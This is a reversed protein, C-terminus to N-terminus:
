GAALAAVDCGAALIASATRVHNWFTWERVYVPWYAAAEDSEAHLARLRENRPVNGAMTVGFGGVVYLVAGALLLPSRVAHWDLALVAVIGQLAATGVFTGLFIPNLVTVNIRQMAAIGTPPPLQALARMVFTSFAFFVGGIVAAGLATALVLIALM